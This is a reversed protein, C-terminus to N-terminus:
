RIAPVKIKVTFEEEKYVFDLYGKHGNVIDHIIKTGLGEHGDSKTTIGYTEYLQDLIDNPIPLATNKCILIYLGSKKYFQLSIQAQENHTKQWEESADISNSLLNGILTVINHDSFPLSSLPLDLDYVISIGAAQARKYMQHLAGAVIGREGKISLNTEEYGGVLEDLYVKAEKNKGNELLFHVASVHKLFDHRESRVIRFTENFHDRQEEFQQLEHSLINLKRSGAQRVTELGIFILFPVLEMFSPLDAAYISLLILQMFSLVLHWKVNLVSLNLISKKYLFYAIGFALLSTFYIPTEWPLNMALAHLHVTGLVATFAWYLKQTKM